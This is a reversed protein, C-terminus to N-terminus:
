IEWPVTFYLTRDLYSGLIHEPYYHGGPHSLFLVPCFLHGVAMCCRCLGRGVEWYTVTVWLLYNKLPPKFQPLPAPSKIWLAKASSKRHGNKNWEGTTRMLSSISDWMRLSNMYSTLRVERWRQSRPMFYGQGYTSVPSPYDRFSQSCWRM